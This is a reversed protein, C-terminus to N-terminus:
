ADLLPGSLTQAAPASDPVVEVEGGLVAAADAEFRALDLYTRGPEVTAVVVGDGGHRLETLGHQAALTELM